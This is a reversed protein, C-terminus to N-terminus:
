TKKLAKWHTTLLAASMFPLAPIGQPSIIITAFGVAFAACMALLTRNANLGFKAAGALYLALFIFDGIGVTPM